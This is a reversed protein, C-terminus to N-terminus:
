FDSTENGYFVEGDDDFPDGHLEANAARAQDAYKCQDCDCICVHGSCVEENYDAYNNM